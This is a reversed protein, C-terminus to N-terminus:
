MYKEPDINGSRNFFWVTHKASFYFIFFVVGVM